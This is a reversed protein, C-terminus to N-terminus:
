CGSKQRKPSYQGHLQRFRWHLVRQLEEEGFKDRKEQHRWVYTKLEAGFRALDGRFKAIPVLSASATGRNSAVNELVTKVTVFSKM